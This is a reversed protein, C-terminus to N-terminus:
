VRRLIIMEIWGKKKKGNLYEESIKNILKIFRKVRDLYNIYM